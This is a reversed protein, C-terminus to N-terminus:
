LLLHQDNWHLNGDLFGEIKDIRGGITLKQVPLKGSGSPTIGRSTLAQKRTQRRKLSDDSLEAIDTESDKPMNITIGMEEEIQDEVYNVKKKLKRYNKKISIDVKAFTEKQSHFM